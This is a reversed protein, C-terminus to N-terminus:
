KKAGCLANYRNEGLKVFRKLCPADPYLQGCRVKAKKLAKKDNETWTSTKNVITTLVCILALKIM